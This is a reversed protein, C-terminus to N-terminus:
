QAQSTQTTSSTYKIAAARSAATPSVDVPLPQSSTLTYSQQRTTTCISKQQKCYSIQVPDSAVVQCAKYVQGTDLM